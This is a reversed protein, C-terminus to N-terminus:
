PEDAFERLRNSLITMLGFSIDYLNPKSYRVVNHHHSIDGNTHVKEVKALKAEETRRKKMKGIKSRLESATKIMEQFM